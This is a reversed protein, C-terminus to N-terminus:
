KDEIKKFPEIKPDTSVPAKELKMEEEVCKTFAYEIAQDRHEFWKIHQMADEKNYRFVNYGLNAEVAQFLILDEGEELNSVKTNCCEVLLGNKIKYFRQYLVYQKFDQM